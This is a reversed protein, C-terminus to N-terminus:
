ENDKGKLIGINSILSVFLIGYVLNILFEAKDIGLVQHLKEAMEENRWGELLTVTIDSSSSNSLTEAIKELSMAPSLQFDGAQISGAM